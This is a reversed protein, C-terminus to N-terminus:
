REDQQVDGDVQPQGDYALDPAGRAGSVCNSSLCVQSGSCRRGCTGCNDPDNNIDVCAGPCEVFGGECDIQCQNAVCSATGHAAPVPCALCSPGCHLVDTDPYCTGSCEHQADGCPNHACESNRCVQGADCAVDCRGCHLRDTVTNSCTGGCNRLSSPCPTAAALDMTLRLTKHLRPAVSADGHAVLGSQYLADVSFSVDIGALSDAIWIVFDSTAPIPGSIEQPLDATVLPQGGVTAAVHLQDAQAGEPLNLILRLATKPTEQCAGAALAALAVGLLARTPSAGVLSV